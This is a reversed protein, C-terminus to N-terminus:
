YLDNYTNASLPQTIISENSVNRYSTTPNSTSHSFLHNPDLESKFSRYLGKRKYLAVILLATFIIYIVLTVIGYTLKTGGSSINDNIIICSSVFAIFLSLIGFVIAATLEHTTLGSSPKVNLKGSIDDYFSTM